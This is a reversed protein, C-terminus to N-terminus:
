IGGDETPMAYSGTEMAYRMNVTGPSGTTRFRVKRYIVEVEQPAVTPHRHAPISGDKDRLMKSPHAVLWVHVGNRQAFSRLKSLVESVYETETQNSKRAQEFYNWPDLVLCKVGYRM